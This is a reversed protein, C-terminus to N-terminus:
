GSLTEACILNSLPKACLIYAPLSINKIGDNNSGHPNPCIIAKLYPVIGTTLSVPPSFSVIFGNLSYVPSPFPNENLFKM